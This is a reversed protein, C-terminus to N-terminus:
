YRERCTAIANRPHNNVKRGYPHTHTYFESGTLDSNQKVHVAKESWCVRAVHRRRKQADASLDKM